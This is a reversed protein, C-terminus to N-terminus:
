VKWVTSTVSPSAGTTDARLAQLRRTEKIQFAPLIDKFLPPRGEGTTDGVAVDMVELLDGLHKVATKRPLTLWKPCETM